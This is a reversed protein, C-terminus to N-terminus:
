VAQRRSRELWNWLDTSHYGTYSGNLKLIVAAHYDDEGEGNRLLTDVLASMDGVPSRMLVAREGPLVYADQVLDSECRRIRDPVDTDSFLVVFLNM